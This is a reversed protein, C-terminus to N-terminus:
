SSSTSFTEGSPLTSSSIEIRPPRRAAGPRGEPDGVLGDAATAGSVIRGVEVVDLRQRRCPGGLERMNAAPRDAPTTACCSCADRDDVRLGLQHLPLHGPQEHLLVVGVKERVAMEHDVVILAAIRGAAAVRIRSISGAVGTRPRSSHRSRRSVRRCRLPAPRRAPGFPLTSVTSGCPPRTRSTVPSASASARRPINCRADPLTSPRAGTPSIVWASRKRGSSSVKRGSGLDTISWSSTM